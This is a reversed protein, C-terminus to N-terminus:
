STSRKRSHNKSCKCYCSYSKSCYFISIEDFTKRNWSHSINHWNTKCCYNSCKHKSNSHYYGPSTSRTCEHTNTFSKTHLHKCQYKEYNTGEPSSMVKSPPFVM